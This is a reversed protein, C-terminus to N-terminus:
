ADPARRAEFVPVYARGSDRFRRLFWRWGERAEGITPASIRLVARGHRAGVLDIALEGQRYPVHQLARVSRLARSARQAALSGAVDQPDQRREPRLAARRIHPYGSSPPAARLAGADVPAGGVRPEGELGPPGFALALLAALAILLSSALAVATRLVQPDLPEEALARLREIM